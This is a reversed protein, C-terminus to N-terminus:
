PGYYNCGFVQLLSGLCARWLSPTSTETPSLTPTATLNPSTIRQSNRTSKPRPATKVEPIFDIRTLPSDLRRIKTSPTTSSDTESAIARYSLMLLPPILIAVLVLVLGSTLDLKM